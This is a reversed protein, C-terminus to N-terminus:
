KLEILFFRAKSDGANRLLGLGGPLWLAAGPESPSPADTGIDLLAATLPLVLHDAVDTHAPLTGGPGLEARLLRIAETEFLMTQTYEGEKSKGFRVHSCSHANLGCLAHEPKIGTLVEVVLLNAPQASINVLKHAWGGTLVQTEADNMQLEFRNVAGAAELHSSGLSILLYDHNHVDFGTAESPALTLRFVRVERNDLVHQFHSDSSMELAASFRAVGSKTAYQKRPIQAFAVAAVTTAFVLLRVPKTASRYM